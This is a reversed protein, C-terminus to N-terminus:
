QIQLRDAELSPNIRGGVKGTLERNREQAVAEKYNTKLTEIHDEESEIDGIVSCLRLPIFEDGGDDGTGQIVLSVPYITNTNMLLGLNTNFRRLNEKLTSSFVKAAKVLAIQCAVESRGEEDLKGSLALATMRRVEKKAPDIYGGNFMPVVKHIKGNKNNKKKRGMEVGVFFGPRALPLQVDQSIFFSM